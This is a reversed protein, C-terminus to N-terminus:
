KNEAPKVVNSASRLVAAFARAEASCRLAEMPLRETRMLPLAVCVEGFAVAGWCALPEHERLALDDLWVDGSCRIRLANRRERSAAISSFRRGDRCNSFRAM